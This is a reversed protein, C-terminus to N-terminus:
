KIEQITNKLATKLEYCFQLYTASKGEAGVCDYGGGKDIDVVLTTCKHCSIFRCQCMRSDWRVYNVKPIVRLATGEIPMSLYICCPLMDM